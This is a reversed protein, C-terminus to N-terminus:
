ARAPESLRVRLHRLTFGVAPMSCTTAATTIQDARMDCDNIVGLQLVCCVQVCGKGLHIVFTSLQQPSCAASAPPAPPSPNISLCGPDLYLDPLCLERSLTFLKRSKSASTFTPPVVHRSPSRRNATEMVLTPKQLPDPKNTSVAFMCPQHARQLALQWWGLIRLLELNPCAERIM